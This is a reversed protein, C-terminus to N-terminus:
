GADLTHLVDLMDVGRDTAIRELWVELHEGARGLGESVWAMRWALRVGQRILWSMTTYNLTM